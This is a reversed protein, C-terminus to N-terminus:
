ERMVWKEFKEARTLIKDEEEPTPEKGPNGNIWLTEARELSSQRVIMKQRKAEEVPDRAPGGWGPGGKKTDPGIEHLTATKGGGSFQVAIKEGIKFQSLKSKM